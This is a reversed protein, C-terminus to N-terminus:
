AAAHGARRSRGAIQHTEDELWSRLLVSVWTRYPRWNEAIQALRGADPEFDLRYARKVAQLLRPEHTPLMDVKGVGRLVILDASFDGIGLLRKLQALAQDVTLQRLRAADLTGDLTALALGHLYEVKRGFLGTFATVGLLRQPAPFAYEPEGHISVSTGLEHAMRAKIRAAQTIRIRQSILSWAAAEYPSYFLVPRLGAYRAQIRGIVPDREGVLSFGSGDVDLSLIRMVQSRVARSDAQGYIEGLIRGDREQVCVGVSQQSGDAVFAMHLHGASRSGTYAAPTFGELFATSAALSYPGRPLIEFSAM